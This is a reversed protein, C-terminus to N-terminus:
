VFCTSREIEEELAEIQQMQTFADLDLACAFDQLIIDKSQEISAINFFLRGTRRSYFDLLTLAQEKEICYKAEARILALSIENESSFEPIFDLIRMTNTGYNELLYSATIEPLKLQDTAQKIQQFLTQVGKEGGEPAGELLLTETQIPLYNGNLNQVVKDVVKEAMKRYGTLKGGAINILGSKAIFLEDKRSIEGASKGKERILPRLGAWSSQIDDVVLKATPFMRNAAALLYNVEDNLIPIQNIDETYETDTTGIYTCDLRPIAFIMRKDGVDFYLAQKVPLRSHPLVIHIGKSLFLRDDAATNDLERLEDVWPGTANVVNAAQIIVEKQQISDVANLGTVKGNKDYQFEKAEMYNLCVAGKERATQHLALTLRADDTRYEAYYGGAKLNKKDLLPEKLETEVKNLMQRKDDGKVGALYDYVWLAIGTTFKSFSGDKTIPLLMKKPRVLHPAIDHVIARERGVERVLSIEFQKLYRLGGHILKTSKSSTGSAYDNKEILAVKLGRTVADLVIGAGTVGGGIIVLDFTTSELAQIDAKRTM